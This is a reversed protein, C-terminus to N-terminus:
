KNSPLNIAYSKKSTATTNIWQLRVPLLFPRNRATIVADHITKSSVVLIHMYLVHLINGIPSMTQPFVCSVLMSHFEAHIIDLCHQEFYM